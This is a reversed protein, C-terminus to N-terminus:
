SNNLTKPLTASGSGGKKPRHWESLAAGAGARPLMKSMFNVKKM